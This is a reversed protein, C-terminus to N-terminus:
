GAQLRALFEPQVLSGLADFSVVTSTGGFGGSLSGRDTTFEIGTPVVLIEDFTADQLGLAEASEPLLGDAELGAIWLADLESRRSLDLVEGPDLLRGEALDVIASRVGYNPYARCCVYEYFDFRVSVIRSDAYSVGYNVEYTGDDSPPFDTLDDVWYDDLETVYTALAENAAATGAQTSEIKPWTLSSLVHPESWVLQQEIQPTWAVPATSTEDDIGIVLTSTGERGEEFVTTVEYIADSPLVVDALGSLIQGTSRDRVSIDLPAPGNVLDFRVRQGQGAEFIFSSETAFDYMTLVASSTGPLFTVEPGEAPDNTNLALWARTPSHEVVLLTQDGLVIKNETVQEPCCAGGSTSFSWVSAGTADIMVDYIGGHARDGFGLQGALVPVGDVLRYAHVADFHGSGGGNWSTAVLADDIGDNNLDGFEIDTVTLAFYEDDGFEGNTYEGDTVLVGDEPGFDLGSDHVFNLFDVDSISDVTAPPQPPQPEPETEVAATPETQPVATPEIQPQTRTVLAPETPVTESVVSTTTKPSSTCATALLFCTLLTAAIATKDRLQM